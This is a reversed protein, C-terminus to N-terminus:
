EGERFNRSRKNMIRVSVKIHLFYKLTKETMKPITTSVAQVVCPRSFVMGSALWDERLM